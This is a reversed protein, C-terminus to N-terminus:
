DEYAEAKEHLEKISGFEIFNGKKIDELGEKIDRLLQADFDDVVELIIKPGDHSVRLSRGESLDLEERIKKPLTITGRQQITVNKM